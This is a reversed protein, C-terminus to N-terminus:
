WIDNLILLLCLGFYKSGFGMSMLSCLRGVSSGMIFRVTIGYSMSFCSNRLNENWSGLNSM